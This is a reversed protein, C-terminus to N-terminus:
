AIGGSQKVLKKLLDRIDALVRSDASSLAVPLPKAVGIVSGDDLVLVVRPSKAQTAGDRQFHQSEDMSDGGVGPNLVTTADTAM